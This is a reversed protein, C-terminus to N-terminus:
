TCIENKDSLGMIEGGSYWVCPQLYMDFILMMYKSFSGNQFLLNVTKFGYFNGETIKNLFLIYPLM